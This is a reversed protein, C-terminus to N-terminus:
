QTRWHRELLPQQLVRQRQKQHKKMHKKGFGLQFFREGQEKESMAEDRQATHPLSRANVIHLAAEGM